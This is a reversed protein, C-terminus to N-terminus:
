PRGPRWPRPIFRPTREAYGAYNEFREVLRQEEWAAKRHFFAVTLAGLALGLVNGSRVAMAVVILVVGTYIPHRVWRYPGTTKLTAGATPVPTATLSRGLFASATVALAVGTWFMINAATGLWGATPYHDASPVFALAVILAAQAAVFSWGTVRQTM